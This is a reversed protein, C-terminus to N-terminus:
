YTYNNFQADRITFFFLFLGDRFLIRGTYPVGQLVYNIDYPTSAYTIGGYRVLGLGAWCNLHEIAWPDTSNNVQIYMSVLIVGDMDGDNTSVQSLRM